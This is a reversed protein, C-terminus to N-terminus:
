TFQLTTVPGGPQRHRGSERCRTLGNTSGPCRLAPGRLFATRTFPNGVLKVVSCEVGFLRCSDYIGM